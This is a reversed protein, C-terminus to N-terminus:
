GGAPTYQVKREPRMILALAEDDLQDTEYINQKLELSPGEMISLEHLCEPQSREMPDLTNCLWLRVKQDFCATAIILIGSQGGNSADPHIKASYVYSPHQLPKCM